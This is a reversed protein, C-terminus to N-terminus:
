HETNLFRCNYHFHLYGTIVKLIQIIRSPSVHVRELIFPNESNQSYRVEPDRTLRGMLIVKNM